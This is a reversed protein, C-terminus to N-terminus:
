SKELSQFSREIIIREWSNIKPNRNYYNIPDPTYDFTKKKETIISFTRAGKKGKLIWDEKSQYVGLYVTTQFVNEEVQAITMMRLPFPALSQSLARLTTEDEHSLATLGDPHTHALAYIFGKHQSHMAWLLERPFVVHGPFGDVIHLTDKTYSLIIGTEHSYKM